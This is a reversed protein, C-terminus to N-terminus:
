NTIDDGTGNGDAEAELYLSCVRSSVDHDICTGLSEVLNIGLDYYSFDYIDCLDKIIEVCKEFGEKRELLEVLKPDTLSIKKATM